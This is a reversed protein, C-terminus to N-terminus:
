FKFPSKTRNREVWGVIGFRNTKAVKTITVLRINDFGGKKATNEANKLANENRDTDLEAYRRQAGFGKIKFHLTCSLVQDKGHKASDGILYATKQRIENNKM